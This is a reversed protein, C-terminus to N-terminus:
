FPDGHIIPRFGQFIDKKKENFGVLLLSFGWVFPTSHVLSDMTKARPAIADYGATECDNERLRTPQPRTAGKSALM